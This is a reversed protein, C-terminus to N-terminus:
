SDLGRGLHPRLMGLFAVGGVLATFVGLPVIGVDLWSALFAGAADALVVLAAGLLASAWLLSRHRPGYILRAVHPCVLGVFAIPGALVVASAALGSAVVFLVGRLRPLDVGLAEAEGASLTAVDMARAKSLLLLLAALTMAAIVALRSPFAVAVANQSVVSYVWSGLAGADDGLFGMMWQSMEVRLLGPRFHIALMILAGNITSLVVGTLLLGLPDLVGRRRSALYVVLMSLGAGAAAGGYGAGVAFGLTAAILRQGVMGAAAGTSLGLIFPEALANRLLAQLAVGAIALAAGVVVAVTLRDARLALVAGSDEGVPWGLGSTGVMLRGLAAAVFLLVLVAAAWQKKANHARM